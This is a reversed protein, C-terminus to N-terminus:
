QQRQLVEKVWRPPNPLTALRSRGDDLWADLRATGTSTGQLERRAAALGRYCSLWQTQPLLAVRALLNPLLKPDDILRRQEWDAPRAIHRCILKLEATSVSQPSLRFALLSRNAGPGAREIIREGFSQRIRTLAISMAPHSRLLHEGPRRAFDQLRQALEDLANM